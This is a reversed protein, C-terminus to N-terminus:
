KIDIHTKLENIDIHQQCRVVDYIDITKEEATIQFEENLVYKIIFDYTLNQTKILTLLDLSDINKELIDIPFTHSYLDINSIILKSKNLEKTM